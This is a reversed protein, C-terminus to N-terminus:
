SRESLCTIAPRCRKPFAVWNPGSMHEGGHLGPPLGSDLHLHRHQACGVKKFNEAV